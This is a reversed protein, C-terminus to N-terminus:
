TYGDQQHYLSLPFNDLEPPNSSSDLGNPPHAIALADTRCPLLPGMGARLRSRKPRLAQPWWVRRRRRASAPRQAPCGAAQLAQPFRTEASESGNTARATRRASDEAPEQQPHQLAALSFDSLVVEGNANLLLSEPTIAGHIVRQHHAYQLGSCIQAIYGAITAPALIAGRPHRERLTGRPLYDMVLYPISGDIGVELVRALQPHELRALSRAEELLSDLAVASLDDSLVKIAAPTKLSCHEGLYVQAGPQEDLLRTLHYTGLLQGVRDRM